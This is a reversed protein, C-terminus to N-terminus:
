KVINRLTAELAMYLKWDPHDNQAKGLETFEARKAVEPQHLGLPQIAHRMAKLAASSNYLEDIARRIAAIQEKESREWQDPTPIGNSMTKVERSISRLILTIAALQYITGYGAVV